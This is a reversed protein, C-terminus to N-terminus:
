ERQKAKSVELVANNPWEEGGNFDVLYARYRLTGKYVVMYGAGILPLHQSLMTM